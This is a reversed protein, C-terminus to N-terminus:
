RIRHQVIKQRVDYFRVPHTEGGPRLDIVRDPSFNRGASALRLAGAAVYCTHLGAIFNRRGLGEITPEAVPRRLRPSMGLGAFKLATPSWLLIDDAYILAGRAAREAILVSQGAKKEGFVVKSGAADEYAAGHLLVLDPRQDKVGYAIAILVENLLSVLDSYGRAPTYFASDLVYRPGFSVRIQPDAGDTSADNWGSLVAALLQRVPAPSQFSLRVGLDPAELAYSELAEADAVSANDGLAAM